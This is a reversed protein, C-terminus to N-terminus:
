AYIVGTCSEVDIEREPFLKNGLRNAKSVYSDHIRQGKQTFVWSVENSDFGDDENPLRKFGNEITLNAKEWESIREGALEEYTM